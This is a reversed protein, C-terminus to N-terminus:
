DQSTAIPFTPTASTEPLIYISMPRARLVTFAQSGTASGDKIQIMQSGMPVDFFQVEKFNLTANKGGITITVSQHDPSLNIVRVRGFDGVPYSMTDALSLHSPPKTTGSNFLNEEVAIKSYRGDNQAMDIFSLSTDSINNNKAFWFTTSYNLGMNLPIVESTMKPPLNLMREQNPYNAVGLNSGRPNLVNEPAVTTSRIWLSQTDRTANVLRVEFTKLELISNGIAEDSLILPSVTFDMGIPKVEGRIIITIFFGNPFIFSHPFSFIVNKPNGSETVTIGQVKDRVFHRNVVGYQITTDPKGTADGSYYIDLAPLDPIAHLFRILTKNPDKQEAEDDLRALLSTEPQPSKIHGRGMVVLTQRNFNISIRGRAVTDKGSADSTVVVLTSDSAVLPTGDHYQTIYGFTLPLNYPFDQVCVKGNIFVTIVPMDPMANVIRIKVGRQDPYTCPATCGSLIISTGVLCLVGVFVVRFIQLMRFSM